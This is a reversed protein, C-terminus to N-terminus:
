ELERVPIIVLRGRRIIRLEPLVYRDFSDRSIGVAAAAEDPAYAERRPPPRLALQDVLKAITQELQREALAIMRRREVPTAHAPDRRSHQPRALLGAAGLPRERVEPIRGRLRARMEPLPRDRRVSRRPAAPLQPPRGQGRRRTEHLRHRPWPRPVVPVR